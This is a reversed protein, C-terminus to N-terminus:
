NVCIIDHIKDIVETVKGQTLTGIWRQVDNEAFNTMYLPRVWGVKSTGRTLDSQTLQIMHPDPPNQSTIACALYDTSNGIPLVALILLPRDKNGTGDTNPFSALVITGVDYLPM